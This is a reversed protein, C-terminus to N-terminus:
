EVTRPMRQGVQPSPHGRLVLEVGDDLAGTPRRHRSRPAQQLRARRRHARWRPPDLHGLGLRLALLTDQGAGGMALSNPASSLPIDAPGGNVPLAADLADTSILSVLSSCVINSLETAPTFPRTSAQLLDVFAEGSSSGRRGRGDPAAWRMVRAGRGRDRERSRRGRKPRLGGDSMTPPRNPPFGAAQLQRKRCGVPNGAGGGAAEVDACARQQRAAATGIEGRGSAM